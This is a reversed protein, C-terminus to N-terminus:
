NYIGLKKNTHYGKKIIKNLEKSFIKNIKNMIKNKNIKSIKFKLKMSKHNNHNNINQNM